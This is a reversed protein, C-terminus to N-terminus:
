GLHFKLFSNILHLLFHLSKSSPYILCFLSNTIYFVLHHLIFFLSASFFLSLCSSSWSPLIQSILSVMLHFLIPIMPNRSSSLSLPASPISSCIITSFKGLKTFPVPMLIWSASLPWRLILLFLDM